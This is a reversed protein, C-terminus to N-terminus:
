RQRRGRLGYTVAIASLALGAIALILAVAAM